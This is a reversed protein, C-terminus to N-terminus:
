NFLNLIYPSFFEQITIYNTYNYYLTYKRGWIAHNTSFNKEFYKCYGYYIENINKYIDIQNDIFSKGIPKNIIIEFNIKMQYTLLWLSRAFILKTYISTELWVCRINRNITQSKYNCKQLMKIKLKKRTLSNLVKTLSGENTLILQWIIPILKINKISYYNITIRNIQIIILPHFKHFNYINLNM